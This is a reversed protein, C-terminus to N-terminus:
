CRLFALSSSHWYRCHTEHQIEPNPRRSGTASGSLGISPEVFSGPSFLEDFLDVIGSGSLPATNIPLRAPFQRFPVWMLGAPVMTAWSAKKAPIRRAYM